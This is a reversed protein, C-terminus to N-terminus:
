LRDKLGIIGSHTKGGGPVRRRIRVPIKGRPPIVGLPFVGFKLGQDKKTALVECDYWTVMLALLLINQRKTFMEGPCRHPGGGLPVWHGETGALSFQVINTSMDRKLFRDPWFRDVPFASSEGTCWFESDM